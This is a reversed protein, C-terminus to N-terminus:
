VINYLIYIYLIINGIAIQDEEEDFDHQTILQRFPPTLTLKLEPEPLLFSTNTNLLLSLNGLEYSDALSLINPVPVHHRQCCTNHHTISKDMTRVYM